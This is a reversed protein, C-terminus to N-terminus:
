SLVTVGIRPWFGSVTSKSIFITLSKFTTLVTCGYLRLSINFNQSLKILSLEWRQQALLAPLPQTLTPLPTCVSAVVGLLTSVQLADHSPYLGFSKSVMDLARALDWCHRGPRRTERAGLVGKGKREFAQWAPEHQFFQAFPDLMTISCGASWPVFSINPTTPKFTQGTELKTCCSRVVHLLMYCSTCVSAVNLM